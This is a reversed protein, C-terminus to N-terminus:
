KGPNLRTRARAIAREWIRSDRLYRRIGFLGLRLLGFFLKLVGIKEGHVASAFAVNVDISFASTKRIEDERSKAGNLHNFYRGPVLELQQRFESLYASRTETQSHPHIRFGCLSEACYVIQGRLTLKLWFDWDATYWLKEDLGGLAIATERKIIPAAIAVFNQTLLRELMIDPDVISPYAPLPCRWHGLYRGRSDIFDASHLFFDVKPHAKTLARLVKLRDKHWVDDQHLISIYDGSALSLAHNTAAVWNGKREQGVLVLNLKKKCQELISLTRDTSGDDVVICEINPDEQTLVSDLMFPLYSEGNYTPILVSLWPHM